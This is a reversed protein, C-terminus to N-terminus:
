SYKSINVKFLNHEIAYIVLGATNKSGTKELLNKRHGEVTRSSIFLRDAVDKNTHELCILELIEIERATLSQKLEITKALLRRKRLLDFVYDNFYYGKQAVNVVTDIVIEPKENKELFASAGETILKIIIGPNYHSTLIIVKPQIPLDALAYLTDVGDLVPMSLDLLVVDLQNEESANLYDMLQQGNEALFTVEVREEKELMMEMGKIFLHEDDVIGIKYKKSM